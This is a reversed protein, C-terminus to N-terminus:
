ANLVAEVELAIKVKEGLMLGGAELPANFSIGFDNRNIEGEASFGCRYGGYPDPGFGGLELELEVSKTIGKITLDGVLVFDDDDERISTSVFSMEVNSDTDFFDASRIHADRDANSTDISALDVTATVTSDLPNEGTTFTANFSTFKGRVKSVMLHRIVFGVESHATDVTWTGAKYGPITSM